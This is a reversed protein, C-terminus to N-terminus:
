NLLNLGCLEMSKSWLLKQNASNIYENELEVVNYKEFYKGTAATVEDSSALYISTEAGKEPSVFFPKFLTSITKHFGKMESGFNTNVVGPHLTNATIGTGSLREALELTFLINYLKTNSYTGSPNYSKESQLNSLELVGSKYLASSVNIIRAGPSDKLRDLLLNTLLFHSLHNVQFTEEFGDETIRRYPLCVGANNILVDLSQYKQRFSEVCKRVQSLSSLDATLFDVGNNNSASIIEKKVEVAKAQNRAIFVVNFGKKALALATAKGIGSTAGTILVTKM